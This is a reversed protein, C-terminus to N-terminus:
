NYSKATTFQFVHLDPRQSIENLFDLLILTWATASCYKETEMELLELCNSTCLLEFNRTEAVLANLFIIKISTELEFIKGSVEPKEVSVEPKQVSVEPKEFRFKTNKLVLTEYKSVLTTRKTLIKKQEVLVEPTSEPIKQRQFKPIDFGYSTELSTETSRFTKPSFSNSHLLVFM